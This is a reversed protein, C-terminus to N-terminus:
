CEIQQNEILAVTRLDRIVGILFPRQFSGPVKTCRGAKATSLSSSHQRRMLLRGLKTPSSDMHPAVGPKAEGAGVVM